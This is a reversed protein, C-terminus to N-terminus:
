DKCAEDFIAAQTADLKVKPISFKQNHM